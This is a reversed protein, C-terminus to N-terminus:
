KNEIESLANILDRQVEAKKNENLKVGDAFHMFGSILGIIANKENTIKELIQAGEEQLEKGCKAIEKEDTKLEKIEEVLKEFEIDITKALEAINQRFKKDSVKKYIIYAITIASVGLSSITALTVQKESAATKITEIAASYEDGYGYKEAETKSWELFDKFTTEQENKATKEVTGVTEETPGFIEEVTENGATEQENEATATIPLVSFVCAVIFGIAVLLIKKFTKKM